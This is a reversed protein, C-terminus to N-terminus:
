YEQRVKEKTLFSKETRENLINLLLEVYFINPQVIYIRTQLSFM